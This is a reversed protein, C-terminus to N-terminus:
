NPSIHSIKDRLRAATEYDEQELAQQLRQRLRLLKTQEGTRNGFASPTKGSHRTAGQQTREILPELLSEFVEYDRPCGLQGRKRFEAWSLNCDPCILSGAQKAQEQAVVLDSLLESLPVQPKIALGQQQACDECLHQEIKQGDVIETLHVVAHKDCLQCQM